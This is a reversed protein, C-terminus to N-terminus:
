TSVDFSRQFTSVIDFRRFAVIDFRRFRTEVNRCIQVVIDFSITEVFLKLSVHYDLRLHIPSLRGSPALKVRKGIRYIKAALCLRASALGM